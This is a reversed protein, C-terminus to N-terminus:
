DKAEIKKVEAGSKIFEEVLYQIMEGTKLSNTISIIRLKTWVESEINLAKLVQM